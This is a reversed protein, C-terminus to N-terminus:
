QNFYKKKIKTALTEEIKKLSHFARLIAESRFEYLFDKNNNLLTHAATRIVQSDIDEIKYVYPWHNDKLIKYVKAGGRIQDIAIFPVFHRLAMYAGHFRSTIVLDCQAYLKEIEDPHKRAKALHNELFIIRGKKNQLITKAASIITEKTLESLCSEEGYETQFGRLSIGIVLERKISINTKTRMPAAIAIDEFTEEGGERAFVFDFPNIYNFHNKDFLSIGIGIKICTSFKSFLATLQPHNKIIPGCVFIFIDYQQADIIEWDIRNGSVGAFNKYSAYDFEYGNVHLYNTISQLSLLDGITGHDKFAGYWAILIKNGSKKKPTLSLTKLINMIMETTNTKVTNSHLLYSLTSNETILSSQYKHTLKFVPTKPHDIAKKTKLKIPISLKEDYPLFFHPNSATMVPTADWIAKFKKDSDYLQGFLSHFWFYNDREYNEQWYKITSQHWRESIYNDKTSALFWSSLLRDSSPKSFAFFGTHKIMDPLWSQLSQNCYLTSDVWVGGYNKLLEIRIIDSLAEPPLEKTYIQPIKEELNIFDLLDHKSLLNISWSLNHYYWTEICKKVVVPAKQFGEDWYIWLIKPIKHNNMKTFNTNKNYPLPPTTLIM